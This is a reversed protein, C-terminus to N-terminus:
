SVPSFKRFGLIGILSASMISRWDTFPLPLFVLKIKVHDCSRDPSLVLGFDRRCSGLACRAFLWVLANEFPPSNTVSDWLTLFEELWLEFGEDRHDPAILTPLFLELYFLGKQPPFLLDDVRTLERGFPGPNSSTIHPSLLLWSWLLWIWM